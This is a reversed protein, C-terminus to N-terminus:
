VLLLHPGEREQMRGSTSCWEYATLSCFGHHSGAYNTAPAVELVTPQMFKLFFILNIKHIQTNHKKTYRHLRTLLCNYATTHAHPISGSDEALVILARLQQAM